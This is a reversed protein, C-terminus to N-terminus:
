NWAAGCLAGVATSFTASLTRNTEQNMNDNSGGWSKGQTNVSDTHDVTSGSVTPANQYTSVGEILIGAGPINITTSLSTGTSSGTDAGATATPTASVLNQLRYVDIECGIMPQSFTVSITISTNTTARSAIACIACSGGVNNGVHNVHITGNSGDISVTNLTTGATGTNWGHADVVVLSTGAAAGCAVSNFTFTTATTGSTSATYLRVANAAPCFTPFLAV